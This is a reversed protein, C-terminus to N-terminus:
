MRAIIIHIFFICLFYCFHFSMVKLVNKIFVHMWCMLRAAGPYNHVMGGYIEDAGDSMSMTIIHDPRHHKYVSYCFKYDVKSHNTCVCFLVPHFVRCSDSFGFLMVPWKHWMLSHTDDGHIMQATFGDKPVFNLLRRTSICMQFKAEMSLEFNSNYGAVFAVDPGLSAVEVHQAAFNNMDELTPSFGIDFGRNMREKLTVLYTTVKSELPIHCMLENEDRM